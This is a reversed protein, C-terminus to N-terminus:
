IAQSYRLPIQKRRYSLRAKLMQGKIGGKQLFGEKILELMKDLM